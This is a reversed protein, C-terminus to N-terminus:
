RLSTSVQSASCRPEAAQDAVCRDWTFPAEEAADPSTRVRMPNVHRGLVVLAVAAAGVATLAAAAAQATAGTTWTDDILLISAGAAEPEALFTNAAYRHPRPPPRHANLLRQYRSSASGSRAVIAQVADRKGRKSPVTTVLDFRDIGVRASICIEHRHLFRWLVARAADNLENRTDTSAADKYGPLAHQWAGGAVSLAIPVIADLNSPQRSCCFCYRYGPAMLNRCRACVGPRVAPPPILSPAYRDSLAIVERPLV